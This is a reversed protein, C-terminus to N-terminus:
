RSLGSLTEALNYLIVRNRGLEKARYLAKDACAPLQDPRTIAPSPYVAIGFSTTIQLQSAPSDWQRTEILSRLRETLAHAARMETMPLLAVFEEGGYRAIVDEQRCNEQMLRSVEKLVWDGTAHGFRTNFDRFHDIDCMFCALSTQYRQALSFERELVETFYHRNYLGTLQDTLALRKLTVYSQHDEELRNFLGDIVQKIRMMAAVRAVLEREDFPKALYDDAGVTLGDVKDEVATRLETLMLIPVYLTSSQRLRRCVTYGDIDPLVVDLLILDPKCSGAM